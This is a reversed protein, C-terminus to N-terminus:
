SPGKLQYLPRIWKAGTTAPQAILQFARWALSCAFGGAMCGHTSPVARTQCRVARPFRVLQVRHVTSSRTGARQCFTHATFGPFDLLLPAEPGLDTAPTYSKSTHCRYGLPLPLLGRTIRKLDSITSHNHRSRPNTWTKGREDRLGSRPESEERREQQAKGDTKLVGQDLRLSAPDLAARSQRAVQAWDTLLARASAMVVGHGPKQVSVCSSTSRPM